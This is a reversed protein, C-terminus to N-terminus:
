DARKAKDGTEDFFAFVDPLAAQVIALHEVGAYEKFVVKKVEAKALSDKLSRVGRLAFDEDGVGLFCHVGKLADRPNRLAMGGGLVAIGAYREPAAQALTIAQMAGISHGVLFVRRTDVPYLKNVQDIIEKVAPPQGFAGSRSAVLLWGRKGCQKVIAGNGYGDFFMNESGGAGHLAIVLPLSDGKAVAPPAALRVSEEIKGVPLTLWFQGPRKNGYYGKDAAIAKVAAEAEALLRAAPLNTELPKKAVLTELMHVLSRATARDTTMTAPWDEMARTLADLRPRNEKAFSVTQEWCSLVDKGAVVEARLAHDGEPVDALLLRVDVPLKAIDSEVRALAIDNADVLTLRLAMREPAPVNPDYLRDLTVILNDASIDFFRREPRAALSDAWRRNASPEDASQVAFRARDLHRAAERMRLAFFADVAAKLPATARAHAKADPQEDRAIEFARLRQGLEFRDAPAQAIAWNCLVFALVPSLIFRM